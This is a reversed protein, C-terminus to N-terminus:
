SNPSSYVNGESYDKNHYVEFQTVFICKIKLFVLVEFLIYNYKFFLVLISENNKVSFCLLINITKM